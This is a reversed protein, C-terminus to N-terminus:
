PPPSSPTRSTCQLKPMSPPCSTTRTWFSLMIASSSFVSCCDILMWKLSSVSSHSVYDFMKESLAKEPETEKEKEEREKRWKAVIEEDNIKRTWEPKDTIENMFAIMSRERLTLPTGNWDQIASAFRPRTGDFEPWGHEAIANLAHNFGLFEGPKMTAEEKKKDLRARLDAMYDDANFAAM